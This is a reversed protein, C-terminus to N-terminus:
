EHFEIHADQKQSEDPVFDLARKGAYIERIQRPRGEPDLCVMGMGSDPILRRKGRGM